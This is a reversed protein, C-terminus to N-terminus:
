LVYPLITNRLCALCRATKRKPTTAPAHPGGGAGMHRAGAQRDVGGTWRATRAAFARGADTMGHKEAKCLQPVRTFPIGHWRCSGVAARVDTRGDKKRGVTYCYFRPTSQPIPHKRSPVGAWVPRDELRTRGARRGGLRRGARSVRGARGNDTRLGTRWLLLSTPLCTRLAVRWHACHLHTTSYLECRGSNTFNKMRPAAGSGQLTLQHARSLNLLHGVWVCTKPNDKFTSTFTPDRDWIDWVAM